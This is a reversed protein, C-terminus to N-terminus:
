ESMANWDYSFAHKYHYGRNKETNIADEMLGLKRSGLNCLEHVNNLSSPISSIWTHESFTKEIEGTKQNVTYYEEFCAVLHVTLQWEYGTTIHNQWYFSQKRKRYYLQDSISVQRSKNKNLQKAFDTLKRKPLRILYEWRNAHLIGMASQTSFMADMMLLIKLRPFYRKLREVLREFATLENDQKGEARTLENNDRCLYESMLPICLGNKLTINAELVYIYQQKNDSEANGIRRECWREDKRLGSRTLKQTGDVSIPLCDQIM